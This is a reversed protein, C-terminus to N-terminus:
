VFINCLVIILTYGVAAAGSRSCFLRRDWCRSWSPTEGPAEAWLQIVEGRLFLARKCNYYIFHKLSNVFFLSKLFNHIQLCFECLSCVACSLSTVSSTVHCICVFRNGDCHRTILNSHYSHIFVWRCDTLFATWRDATDTWSLSLSLSLSVPQPSNQTKISSSSMTGGRVQSMPPSLLCWM